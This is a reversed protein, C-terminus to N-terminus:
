KSFVLSTWYRSLRVKRRLVFPSSRRSGNPFSTWHGPRPTVDGCRPVSAVFYGESDREIVVAFRRDM